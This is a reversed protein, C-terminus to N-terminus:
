ERGRKALRYHVIAHRDRKHFEEVVLGKALLHKLAIRTGADKTGLATYVDQVSRAKGDRLYKLARKQIPAFVSWDKM